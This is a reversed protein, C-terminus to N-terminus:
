GVEGNGVVVKSPRIVRDQFKYGRQVEAVVAGEQGKGQSVAEHLRPDFPEGVAKILSLGQAELSARLTREILRIGDVWSIEALSDPMSSFAREFDDLIPLLNLVLLSSAFKITEEKEQESRRKYNVFDAQTRQWGSLYGEAKQRAETLAQKLQAVEEGAVEM